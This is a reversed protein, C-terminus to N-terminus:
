AGKGPKEAAAEPTGGTQPPRYAPAARGFSGFSAPAEEEDAVFLWSMVQLELWVLLLGMPPMLLGSWDHPLRLGFPLLLEDTGKFYVCLGTISIRLINVVLAIPIASALLVVRDILPREVLIAVATLLTVFSLLMSLGNCARAVELKSGGINIVNGEAVAPLGLMDLLNCSGITALRQLPNALMMNIRFPLPLMFCLFIIGPLSWRFLHWGGFALTLCAVALPFTADEFWRENKEFLYSRLVFVGALLVWGWRWPAIKATDLLGRRLWLIWLTAPVVLYCYSYNPDSGWFWSLYIFTPAYAWALALAVLGFAVLDLRHWGPQHSSTASATEVIL